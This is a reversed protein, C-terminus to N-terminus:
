SKPLRREVGGIHDTARGIRGRLVKNEKELNAVRVLLSSVFKELKAVQAALKTVEPSTSTSM